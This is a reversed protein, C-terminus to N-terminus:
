ASLIIRFQSGGTDKNEFSLEGGHAKVIDYALSLGLGTGHGTPKTTFFPQFIKDRINDAIGPGNDTVTILIEGNLNKTSVIVQPNKVRAVAQFANNILNLLVRGFDQPVVEIKPLSEDLDLDFKANFTKDKARFGHYALRLYEDCLANIDTPEKEGENGRSHLLMSRVIEEARRGHHMVKNENDRLNQLIEEVEAWNQVKISESLEDLLEQNVDSFNNVFNLPNQIEHAIGATLEGLSAMKEAHVLQSQAAQLETLTKEVKQKAKELERFDEYRAYAVSFSGALSEVLDIQGENLKDASGVYLMGQKFPVMQLVLHDPADKGAQYRQRNDVLGQDILTHSFSVFAEKDWETQYIEQRRWAAVTDAFIPITDYESRWTALSEGEPNSLYSDIKKADDDVIFVGCRFFPVGLNQLEQWILPTIRRLDETSRMSAIEARVRDLSAQKFAERAQAESKQLDLFRTYTQEFVKAFRKFIDHAEPAPELTIFLLYGYKFYAVHDIQFSPFSHGAAKINSLMEGLVPLTCMYEYHDACKKGAFEETYLTEGVQGKEYYRKFFGERPTPYPSMLGAETGFWETSENEGYINFACGWTKTGLSRVQENLLNAVETLEESRQMAMSRSRIRELAAEIRAERAQKEAKQLDFYRKFTLDAVSAFRRLIKKQDEDVPQRAWGYLSGSTFPIFYGYQKMKTQESPVKFSPAIIEYYSKLLQGELEPFYDEGDLWSDYIKSLVPHNDLMAWGVLSLQDGTSTQTATYLLNKRDNKSHLSIGSRFPTLGLKRLETFIISATEPLDRSDHMAMAKSRVKELAAEILAERAQAEAKQIDLFRTYSQQFVTSFRRLIDVEEQSFTKEFHYQIGLIFHDSTLITQSLYEQDLIWKVRDDPVIKLATHKFAYEFWLNKERSPYIRSIFQIGSEYAAWIDKIPPSDHYPLRFCTPYAQLTDALWYDAERTGAVPIGLFVAGDLGFQLKQLRDFMVAVTNVLENSQHMAMSSARVQELAAEIQAERAQAEAKKLDLFRTYTQEFVKAFRKFIDHASPVPEFSIFMLYGHSFFACHMIQFTPFAQGMTAMKDAIEKFVPISLMYDYHAKLADDRQEEVFLSEGSEAAQQIRLFIDKSSSTKFPPQLREKGAMWATAAQRDDDWINFGSAFVPIGLAQVQQFLLMAADQLEDSRQMGMTRSRVRELATEIQAERAQAEAQKLDEYRQYALDFAGTMKTLIFRPDDGPSAVFDFELMGRSFSAFAHWQTEYEGQQVANQVVGHFEPSVERLEKLGAEVKELDSEMVFFSEGAKWSRWIEGMVPYKRPDFSWRYTQPTGMGGPDSLDWISVIDTEDVLVIAAGTFGEVQLAEVQTHLVEVVSPFDESSHMAMAAARVREVAAEIQAERAQEEAKQLDLFRIYTQEFVKTFRAVISKYEESLFNVTHLHLYGHSFNGCYYIIPDPMNEAIEKENTSGFHPAVFEIHDILDQGKVEQSFVTKKNKWSGYRADLIKNGTLPMNYSEIYVGGPATMYLTQINKKEDVLAYGSRVFTLGLSLLQKYLVEAAEGLESSRQMAMSRARVRELAAEIQAERAQEEAKKLDLFRTYTQEFVKTFRALIIEAESGLKEGTLIHLYGESFNGCYFYTPDPMFPMITEIQHQSHSHEAVYELHRSLTKGGVEQIFVPLKKKWAELRSQLVRDGPYPLNLAHEFAGKPQTMWGYQEGEEEKVIIFGCNFFNSIGLGILEQYLVNAIDGLEESSYMAMSRSRVRELAAEIQAERAQSEAIQLDLFRTYTQEFVKAFRKLVDIEEEGKPKVDIAELLGYKMAAVSFLVYDESLINEKVADPLNRLESEEFILLDLARKDEDQVEITDFPVQDQYIQWYKRLAWHDLTPIEYREPLVRQEPTSLWAYFGSGDKKAIRIQFGWEALGFPHMRQFLENVVERLATSHHMAMTRARVKELAAEIQAERAQAEAKQVDLFRTYTQEFVRAFRQLIQAEEESLASPGAVELIGHSCAADCLVIRKLARMGKKINGPLSRLGTNKLLFEDWSKKEQGSLEFVQYPTKEERIKILNRARPHDKFTNLPPISYSHPLGEEGFETGWWELGSDPKFIFIVFMQIEIGLHQVQRFFEGVVERLEESNRMAMTRSRVREITAEIRSERALMEANQLDLFRKYALAFVETSRQLISIENTSLPAATGVFVVGERFSSYHFVVRNVESPLTGTREGTPIYNRPMSQVFDRLADGELDYLWFSDQNKWHNFIGQSVWHVDSTFISRTQIKKAQTDTTISWAEWEREDPDIVIGIGSRLPKIGLVELVSFVEYATSLIDESSQMSLTKSRIKDLAREIEVERKVIELTSKTEELEQLLHSYKKDQIEDPM